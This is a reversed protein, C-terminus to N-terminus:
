VYGVQTIKFPQNDVSSFVLKKNESNWSVHVDVTNEILVFMSNPLQIFRARPEEDSYQKPIILEFSKFTTM